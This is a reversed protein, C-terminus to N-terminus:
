SFMSYSLAESVWSLGLTLPRVAFMFLYSRQLFVLM